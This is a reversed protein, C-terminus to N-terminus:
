VPNYGGVHAEVLAASPLNPLFERYRKNTTCVSNAEATIATNELPASTGTRSSPESCHSYIM